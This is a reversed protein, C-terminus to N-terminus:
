TYQGYSGGQARYSPGDMGEMAGLLGV